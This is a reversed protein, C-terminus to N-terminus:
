RPGQTGAMSTGKATEPDFLVGRGVEAMAPADGSLDIGEPKGGDEGDGPDPEFGAYVSRYAELM